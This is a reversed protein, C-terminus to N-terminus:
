MAVVIFKVLSPTIEIGLICGQIHDSGSFATFVSQVMSAGDAEAVVIRNCSDGGYFYAELGATRPEGLTEVVTDLAAQREVM